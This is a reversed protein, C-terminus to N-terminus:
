GKNNAFGASTLEDSNFDDVNIISLRLQETEILLDAEEQTISSSALGKEAVKDLQLFPLKENVALCVKDHLAECAIIKVLATELEGCLNDGDDTLYQGQGLRTRADNPTQLLRAVQHDVTDSPKKLWCGLPFIVSRLMVGVIRNPFNTLLEDIAQQIRYLSDEVAWSVLPM